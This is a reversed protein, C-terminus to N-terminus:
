ESLTVPLCSPDYLHETDLLLVDEGAAVARSTAPLSGSIEHSKDQIARNRKKTMASSLIWCEMTVHDWKLM